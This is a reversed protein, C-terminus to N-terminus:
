VLNEKELYKWEDNYVSRITGDGRRFISGCVRDKYVLQLLEEEAIVVIAMNENIPEGLSDGSEILSLAKDLTLFSPRYLSYIIDRVHERKWKQLDFGGLRCEEYNLSVMNIRDLSLSKRWDRVPAISAYSTTIGTKIQTGTEPIKLMSDMLYSILFTETVSSWARRENNFLYVTGRAEGDVEPNVGELTHTERLQFLGLLGNYLLPCYGRSFYHAFEETILVM